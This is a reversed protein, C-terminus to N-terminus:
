GEPLIVRPCTDVANGQMEQDSYAGTVWWPLLSSLGGETPEREKGTENRWGGKLTEKL